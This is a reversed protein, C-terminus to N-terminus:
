AKRVCAAYVAYAAMGVLMGIVAGVMEDFAINECVVYFAFNASCLEATIALGICAGAAALVALKVPERM